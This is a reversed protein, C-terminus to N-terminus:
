GQLRKLIDRAQALEDEVVTHAMNPYIKETVQAGLASLIRTTEQVRELPIHADRDSCGIFVPTGELSGGYMEVNVEEDSGILGGSFILLGGYRAPNQAAFESTLCAGQSFGSLVLRDKPIGADEVEQVLGAILDLASSLHPENRERPAIFRQPYWEYNAAQPALIAMTEANLAQALPVISQATAGRGHIVIIAADADELSKGARIVEQIEHIQTM